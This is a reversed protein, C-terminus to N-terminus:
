EASSVGIAVQAIGRNVSAEVAAENGPREAAEREVSCEPAVRQLKLKITPVLKARKREVNSSAWCIDVSGGVLQCRSYLQRGGPPVSVSGFNKTTSNNSIAEYELESIGRHIRTDGCPISTNASNVLSSSKISLFATQLQKGKFASCETIAPSPTAKPASIEAVM